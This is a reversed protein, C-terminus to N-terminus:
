RTADAILTLVLTVFFVACPIAVLPLLLGDLHAAAQRLVTWATPEVPAPAVRLQVEPVLAQWAADPLAAIARERLEPCVLVLEPSILEVAAAAM